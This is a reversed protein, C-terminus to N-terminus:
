DGEREISAAAPEVSLKVTPALPPVPALAAWGSPTALHHSVDVEFSGICGRHYDATKRYDDDSHTRWNWEASQQREAESTDARTPHGDAGESRAITKLSNNDRNSETEREVRDHGFQQCDAM